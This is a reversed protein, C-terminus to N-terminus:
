HGFALWHITVNEVDNGGYLRCTFGSASTTMIVVQVNFGPGATDQLTLHLSDCAVPFAVPFTVTANLHPVAPDIDGFAATGYQQSIAATARVIFPAGVALAINGAVISAAGNTVTVTWLGVYGGDPAPVVQSGTAAPTGAKAALIANCKRATPQAVGLGGPGSFAILPNASNYYPLTVSGSDIEQMAAQILYVVSQGAGGPAPCALLVPDLLLGQKTLPHTDIGLSSFATADITSTAYIEGAGVSVSMPPAGAPTCAFGNVQTAPGILGAALKGIALMALKGTSLTDTELPIQGPYTIVRDM